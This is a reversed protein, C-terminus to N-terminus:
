RLEVARDDRDSFREVMQVIQRDASRGDARAEVRMGFEALASCLLQGFQRPQRKTRMRVLEGRERRVVIEHERRTRELLEGRRQHLDGVVDTPEAGPRAGPM